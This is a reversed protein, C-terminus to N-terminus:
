KKCLSCMSIGKKGYYCQKFCKFCSVHNCNLHMIGRKNKSCNICQLNNNIVLTGPGTKHVNMSTNKWTGFLMDCNTCIYHAKCEYWWKPLSDKCLEYNKCKIQYENYDENYIINNEEYEIDQGPWIKRDPWIKKVLQGVECEKCIFGRECLINKGDTEILKKADIEFWPEPRDNECTKHTNCIEFICVLENENLYAVDAIKLGNHEFRYELEINSEDIMKCIKFTKKRECKNCQRTIKFDNKEELMSKMLMKADKHIQSESPSTYYTCMNGIDIKHRFHHKIINGQCLILDKDCDPCKYTHKKDANKLYTYKGTIKNIAGLFIENM